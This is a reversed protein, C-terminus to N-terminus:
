RMKSLIWTKANDEGLKCKDCREKTEKKDERGCLEYARAIYCDGKGCEHRIDAIYCGVLKGCKDCTIKM